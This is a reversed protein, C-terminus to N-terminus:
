LTRVRRIRRPQVMQSDMDAGYELSGPSFTDVGEVSDHIPGLELCAFAIYSRILATLVHLIGHTVSGLASPPSPRPPLWRTLRPFASM